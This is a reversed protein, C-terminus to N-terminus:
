GSIAGGKEVVKRAFPAQLIGADASVVKGELPMEELLALAAELESGGKVERQALVQGLRQGVLTVVHLAAEVGRKSGRLHKGDVAYAQEEALWPRLAEELAGGDLRKLVKWIGVLGPYRWLDLRQQLLAAHEKGWSWMGHLSTEGQMAALVLIALIQWLEYIKGQRSRPDKVQRLADLLSM